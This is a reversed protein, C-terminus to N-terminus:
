PPGVLALIGGAYGRADSLRELGGGGGARSVGEDLHRYWPPPVYMILIAYENTSIFSVDIILYM